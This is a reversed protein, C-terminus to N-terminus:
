DFNAISKNDEFFKKKFQMIKRFDNKNGLSKHIKELFESESERMRDIGAEVFNGNIKSLQSDLERILNAEHAIFPVLNNEDLRLKHVFFEQLDLIWKERYNKDLEIKVYDQTFLVRDVYTEKFDLVKQPHYEKSLDNEKKAKEIKQKTLKEEHAAISRGSDFFLRQFTPALTLLIIFGLTVAASLTYFKKVNKQEISPDIGSFDESELDLVEDLMIADITKEFISEVRTIEISDKLFPLIRARLVDKLDKRLLLSRKRSRESEEEDFRKRQEETRHVALKRIEQLESEVEDRKKQIELSFAEKQCDMEIQNEKLLNEVLKHAEEISQSSKLEAQEIISAAEKRTDAMLTRKEKEIEDDFLSRREKIEQDLKLKEESFDKQIKEKFDRFYKDAEVKINNYYHNAEKTKAKSYNEAEARKLEEYQIAENKKDNANEEIKIQKEKAETLLSEAEQKAKEITDSAQQRSKEIRSEAELTAGKIIEESKVKANSIISESEKKAMEKDALINEENEKELKQLNEIHLKFESEMEDTRKRKIKTLKFLNDEAEIIKQNLEDLRKESFQAQKKNKILAEETEKLSKELFNVESQKKTISKMAEHIENTFKEKESKLRPVESKLDGLAIDRKRELDLVESKLLNLKSLEDSYAQKSKITLEENEAFVKKLETIDNELNESLDRFHSEKIVLEANEKKLKENEEKAVTLIEVKQNEADTLIKNSIRTAEERSDREIKECQQEMSLVKSQAEKLVSEAQMQASEIIKNAELHSAERIEVLEQELRLQEEEAIKKAEQILEQSRVEAEKIQKEKNFRASKAIYALNDFINDVTQTAQSLFHTHNDTQTSQNGSITFDTNGRMKLEQKKKALMLEKQELVDDIVEKHLIATIRLVCGKNSDIYLRNGTKYEYKVHPELREGQLYTGNTSGLDKVYIKNDEFYVKLHRRSVVDSPISLDCEPTRGLVFSESKIYAQDSNKKLKYQVWFHKFAM